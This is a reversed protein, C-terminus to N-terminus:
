WRESRCSSRRCSMGELKLKQRPMEGERVNARRKGTERRSFLLFHSNVLQHASVRWRHPFHPWSHSPYKAEMGHQAVRQLKNIDPFCRRTMFITFDSTVFAISMIGFKIRRLTETMELLKRVFSSRSIRAPTSLFENQSQLATLNANFVFKVICRESQRCKSRFKFWKEEGREHWSAISTPYNKGREFCEWSSM